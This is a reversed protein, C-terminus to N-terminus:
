YDSLSEGADGDPPPDLDLTGVVGGIGDGTSLDLGNRINLLVRGFAEPATEDLGDIVLDLAAIEVADAGDFDELVENVAAAIADDDSTAGLTSLRENILAALSQADQQAEELTADQAVAAPGAFGSVLLAAHSAAVFVISRLM